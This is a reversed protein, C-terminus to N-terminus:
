TGTFCWKISGDVASRLLSGEQAVRGFLWTCMLLGIFIYSFLLLLHRPHNSFNGILTAPGIINQLKMSNKRQQSLPAPPEASQIEAGIEHARIIGKTLTNSSNRERKEHDHHTLVTVSPEALTM